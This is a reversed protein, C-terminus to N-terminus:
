PSINKFKMSENKFCLCLSKYSCILRDCYYIVNSHRNKIELKQFISTVEYFNNKKTYKHEISLM